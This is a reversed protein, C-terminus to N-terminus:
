SDFLPTSYLLNIDKLVHFVLKNIETENQFQITVPLELHPTFLVAM